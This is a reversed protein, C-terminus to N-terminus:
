SGNKCLEDLANKWLTISTFTVTSTLLPHLHAVFCASACMSGAWHGPPTHTDAFGTQERCHCCVLKNIGHDTVSDTLADCSLAACGWTGWRLRQDIGFCQFLMVNCVNSSTLPRCLAWLIGFFLVWRAAMGGSYPAAEKELSHSMKSM